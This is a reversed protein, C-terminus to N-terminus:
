RVGEPQHEHRWQDVLTELKLVALWLKDDGPGAHFYEQNSQVIEYIRFVLKHTDRAYGLISEANRLRDEFNDENVMPM